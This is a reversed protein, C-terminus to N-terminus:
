LVRFADAGRWTLYWTVIIGTVAVCSVVVLLFQRNKRMELLVM